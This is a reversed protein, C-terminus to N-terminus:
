SIDSLRKKFFIVAIHMQTISCMEVTKHPRPVNSSELHYASLSELRSHWSARWESWWRWSEAMLVIDNDRERLLNRLEPNRAKSCEAGGWRTPENNIIRRTKAEFNNRESPKGSLGFAGDTSGGELGSHRRYIDAYNNGNRTSPIKSSLICHQMDKYRSHEVCTSLIYNFGCLAGTNFSYILCEKSWSITIESPMIKTSLFSFCIEPSWHPCQPFGEFM